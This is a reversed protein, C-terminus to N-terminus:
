NIYEIPFKLFHAVDREGGELFLSLLFRKAHSSSMIMKTHMHPGWEEM